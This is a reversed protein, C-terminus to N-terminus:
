SMGACDRQQTSGERSLVSSLTSNKRLDNPKLCLYIPM